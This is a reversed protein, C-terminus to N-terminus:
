GKGRGKERNGRGNERGNGREGRVRRGSGPYSPFPLIPGHRANVVFGRGRCPAHHALGEVGLDVDVAKGMLALDPLGILVIEEYGGEVLADVDLVAAQGRAVVVNGALFPEGEDHHHGIAHTAGLMTLGGTTERDLGDGVVHTLRHAAVVARLAGAFDREGLHQFLGGTLAVLADAPVGLFLRDAAHGGCQREEETRPGPDVEELHAIGAAVPQAFPSSVWTVRSWVM